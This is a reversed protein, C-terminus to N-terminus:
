MGEEGWDPTECGGGPGAALGLVAMADGVAMAGAALAGDASAGAAAGCWVSFDLREPDTSCSVAGDLEEAGSALLCRATSM